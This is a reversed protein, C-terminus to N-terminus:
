LKGKLLIARMPAGDPTDLRLPLGVFTYKGPKVRALDLGEVIIIGKKLLTTHPRQDISGRKKISLADIGFLTIRKKALYEAADGDLYIYDPYFEKFGRRSNKTRVLVREGLRIRHSELDSVKICEKVRTMDLVRCPGVLRTLGVDEMGSAGEFVHGPVDMHTGTHTGLSIHSLFSVGTSLREFAVDPNKPYTIMGPYIPLSIDIIDAIKLNKM